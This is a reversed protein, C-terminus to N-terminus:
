IQNFVSSIYNCLCSQYLIYFTLRWWANTNDPNKKKQGQFSGTPPSGDSYLCVDFYFTSSSFDQVAISTKKFNIDLCTNLLIITSSSLASNMNAQSWWSSKNCFVLWYCYLLKGCTEGWHKWGTPYPIPFIHVLWQFRLFFQM